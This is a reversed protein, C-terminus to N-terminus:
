DPNSRDHLGVNVSQVRWSIDSPGVFADIRTVSLPDIEFRISAAFDLDLALALAARITGAHAVSVIAGSSQQNSLTVIRRLVRRCMEAFSEGGPPATAVPDDWFHPALPAIEDWTRGTWVGFDQECFDPETRAVMLSPDVLRLADYTQVARVVGSTLATLGAPLIGALRALAVTDSLDAPVDDRGHIINAPSASPAHRIWWWQLVGEDALDSM